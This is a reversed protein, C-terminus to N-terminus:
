VWAAAVMPGLVFLTLPIASPLLFALVTLTYKIRRSRSASDRVPRSHKFGPAKDLLATQATM